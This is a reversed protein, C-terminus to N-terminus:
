SNGHPAAPSKAVRLAYASQYLSVTSASGDQEKAFAPGALRREFSSQPPTSDPAGARPVFAPTGIPTPLAVPLAPAPGLIREM